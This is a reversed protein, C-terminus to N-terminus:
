QQRKKLAEVLDDLALVEVPMLCCVLSRHFLVVDAAIAAFAALHTVIPVAVCRYVLM